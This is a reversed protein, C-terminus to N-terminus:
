NTLQTLYETTIEQGSFSRILSSDNRVDIHIIKNLGNSRKFQLTVSKNKFDKQLRKIADEMSICQTKESIEKIFFTM